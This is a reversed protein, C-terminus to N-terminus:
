FTLTFARMAREFLKTASTLSFQIAYQGAGIGERRLTLEWPNDGPEVVSKGVMWAVDLAAPDEVYLPYAVFTAESGTLTFTNTIARDFRVGALPQREYVVAKPATPTVTITREARVSGDATAVLVSVTFASAFQPPTITLSRVGYGIKTPKANNNIRWTYVLNEPTVKVGGVFLAPVAYLVVPSEGTPLPLVDFFPPVYTRGEWLVDVSAPRLTLSATGRAVGDETATVTVITASGAAGVTVTISTRGVGQEVLKGNVTWAYATAQANGAYNMARLLVQGGPLPADPLAEISLPVGITPILAALATVPLLVGLAVLAALSKM